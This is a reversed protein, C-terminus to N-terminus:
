SIIQLIKDTEDSTVEFIPQTRFTDLSWYAKEEETHEVDYVVGYRCDALALLECFSSRASVVFKSMKAMRLAEPLSGKFLVDAAIQQKFEKDLKAFEVEKFNWAVRLGARRCQNAISLFVRHDVKFTNAVPALFVLDSVIPLRGLDIQAPIATSPLGLIHRVLNAHSFERRGSKRWFLSQRGDLYTGVNTFFVKGPMPRDSNLLYCSLPLVDQNFGTILSSGPVVVSIATKEIVPFFKLLPVGEGELTCITLEANLVQTFISLFGFFALKERNSGMPWFLYNDGTFDRIKELIMRAPNYVNDSYM